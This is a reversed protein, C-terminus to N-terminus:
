FSISLNFRKNNNFPTLYVQFPPLSVILTSILIAHFSNIKNQRMWIYIIYAMLGLFFISIGRIINVDTLTEMFYGVACVSYALLPRNTQYILFDYIPYSKCNGRQM